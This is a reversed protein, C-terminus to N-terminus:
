EGGAENRMAAAARAVARLIRLHSGCRCLHPELAAVIDERTPAENANLLAAASMIIGPICYGCQAAQEDIFAQQLVHLTDGGLGEITTIRCGALEGVPVQCAQEARGDILVTCVGCQGLACGTKTGTLGFHERLIFLVPTSPDAVTRRPQGNLYFQLDTPEPEVSIQIYM